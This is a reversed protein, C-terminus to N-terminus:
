KELDCKKMGQAQFTHCNEKEGIGPYAWTDAPYNQAFDRFCDAAEQCKVICGIGDTAGGKIKPHFMEDASHGHDPDQTGRGRNVVGPVGAITEGLGGVPNSPWYGYSEDSGIEIWHHGYLDKGSSTKTIQEKIIGGWRIPNRKVTMNDCSCEESLGMPDIWNLPDTPYGYFNMGGMLGIPDQNIYAGIKPDYYRHRNYYLGTERDHHQGPLRINQEINHPNFEEEINGWPDYRAAWVIKGNRDTLTIPTGLHDCHYFHIEVPTQEEQEIQRIGERMGGVFSDPDIGMNSMITRGLPTPGKELMHKMGKEMEKQMNPPMTAMMSQMM